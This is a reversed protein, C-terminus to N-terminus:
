GRAELRKDTNKYGGASSRLWDAQRRGKVDLRDKSYPRAIRESRKVCSEFRNKVAEYIEKYGTIVINYTFM